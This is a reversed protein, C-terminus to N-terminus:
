FATLCVAMRLNDKCTNTSYRALRPVQIQASQAGALIEVTIATIAAAVLSQANELNLAQLSQLLETEVM